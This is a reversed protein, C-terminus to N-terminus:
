VTRTASTMSTNRSVTAGGRHHHHHHTGTTTTKMSHNRSIGTTETRTGETTTQQTTTQNYGGSTGTRGTNTRQVPRSANSQADSMTSMAGSRMSPRRFYDSTDRNSPRNSSEQANSDNLEKISMVINLKIPGYYHNSPGSAIWKKKDRRLLISFPLNTNLVLNRDQRNVAPRGGVNSGAVSNLASEDQIPRWRRDM